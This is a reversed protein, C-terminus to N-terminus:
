SPALAHQAVYSGVSQGQKLGETVALRFHYGVYIRSLGIENAVQSFSTFSRTATPLSTSTYTFTAADGFFAQLVAAGAGAAGAHASPYDPVPPTVFDFPTWTPDGATDPNGDADGARIATIPRWFKYFYKTELSTTYADAEALEVMAFLRAQDWGNMNQAVAVKAAIRAFTGPTSELWFKAIESQDATRVSSTMGGIAKMEDYDATYAADTVRYPPPSRFQEGSTLVFTKVQGWNVYTAVGVPITPQYVGPDAPQSYPGQANASGDSARADLLAKATRQGLAIGAAKSAGDSVKALEQTYQADLYAAQSPVTATMVDHAPAAAAADASAESATTDTLYPKYRRDIANLADHSAAFAMAYARSEDMPALGPPNAAADQQVATTAIASWAAPAATDQRAPADDGGGCATITMAVASLLAITATKWRADFMSKEARRTTLTSM